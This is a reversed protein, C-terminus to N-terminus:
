NNTKPTVTASLCSCTSISYLKAKLRPAIQFKYGGVKKKFQRRGRRVAGRASESIFVNRLYIIHVSKHLHVKVHQWVTPSKFSDQNNSGRWKRLVIRPGLSDNCRQHGDVPLKTKTIFVLSSHRASGFTKAGSPFAYETVTRHWSVSPKHPLVQGELWVMECKGTRWNHMRQFLKHYHKDCPM